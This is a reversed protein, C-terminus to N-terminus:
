KTATFTGNLEVDAKIGSIDCEGDGNAEGSATSGDVTGTVGITGTCEDEDIFLNGSFAGENTVGVTFTEDPADGDFRLMGDETVTITISFTDTDTIGLAKATVTFTGTYVGIFNAPISMGASTPEVGSSSGGGGCSSLISLSFLIFCLQIKKM